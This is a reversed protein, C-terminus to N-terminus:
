HDVFLRQNLDSFKRIQKFYFAWLISGKYFGALNTTGSSKKLEKRQNLLTGIRAYMSMHSTFVAWLNAVDGKLLFRVGAVGDLSMRWFLKPFLWGEYNKVIMFLSNRFNLYTKRPSQYSLTGGGVHYVVSTPQVFLRYGKRKARWCWDIEEMHAFFAEDFGGLEHFVSSRVLMAAGSTWFVESVGAYQGNDEEVADFIRGRCFPFFNTDIFGGAAGAHEFKERRHFSRVLPQCAANLENEELLKLMPQLWNETVEIDSNLLLYYKSDIEKLADNYGKAFGGNESNIIVEVEPFHQKLFSVSDDTSANDAVIIRANESFRLVSPLFDSLFQKGNWNLIVISLQSSLDNM